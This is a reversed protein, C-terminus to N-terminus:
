IGEGESFEQRSKLAHPYEIAPIPRRLFGCLEHWGVRTSMDMVLLDDPRSRFHDLVETNHQRYRARFVRENFDRRGYLLKHVQHSFPDHDWGARFPNRPSWHTRCSEIWSDEDRLTLIFKSGPYAKDLDRFLIPIPLDCAAYSKELTSSRGHTDMEGWVAKAWHASPWHATRYGLITLAAALSTTATKHMGIGFIRSPLPLLELPESGFNRYVVGCGFNGANAVPPSANTTGPLFDEATVTQAAEPYERFRVKNNHLIASLFSPDIQEAKLGLRRLRMNFDKDDPGWTQYKENYGGALLFGDRSVAIRGSIGRQMTGDRVMDSWLFKFTESCFAQQIYKDFGSPTHNDADVNVMVDMGEHIALRHAVNKSHAMQFPGPRTHRYVVLRGADIDRQHDRRIYDELHDQSNYNLLFFKACPNAELNGPLTRELHLTRNKCTTCFGVKPYKIIPTSTM